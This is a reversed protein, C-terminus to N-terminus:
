VFGWEDLGPPRPKSGRLAAPLAEPRLAGQVNGTATAILILLEIPQLRVHEAIMQHITPFHNLSAFGCLRLERETAEVSISYRSTQFGETREAV